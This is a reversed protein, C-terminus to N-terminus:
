DSPSENETREEHPVMDRVTAMLKTMTGLLLGLVIAQQATKYPLRDELYWILGLIELWFM